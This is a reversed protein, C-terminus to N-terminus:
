HRSVYNEMKRIKLEIEGNLSDQKLKLEKIEKVLQINAESYKYVSDNQEKRSGAGGYTVRCFDGIRSTVMGKEIHQAYRKCFVPEKSFSKKKDILTKLKKLTTAEICPDEIFFVGNLESYYISEGKYDEITVKTHM